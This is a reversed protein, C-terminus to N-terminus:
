GAPLHVTTQLGLHDSGPIRLTRVADATSNRTLIHDIGIVPPFPADAPFTHTWGAGSQEAADHFGRRFLERFPAMDVTANFDGALVVAGIGAQEAIRAAADPLRAMEDHWADIPQPWPGSVHVLAVTLNQAAGPVEIAASVLGLPYGPLRSSRGIPHRSWIAVGDAFRRADTLQHPFDSGLGERTLARVLDPTLEQFVVIDARDRVTAALIAPDARGESVNATVVRVPVTTASPRGSSVFLPLQVVIAAVTVLAAVTASRWRRLLALVLGAFGAGAMLYPSLSAITLVVHNTVPIFRM